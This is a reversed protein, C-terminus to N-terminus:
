RGRYDCSPRPGQPAMEATAVMCTILCIVSHGDIQHANIFPNLIIKGHEKGHMLTAITKPVAQSYSYLTRLSM